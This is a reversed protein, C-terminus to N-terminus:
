KSMKVKKTCPSKKLALAVTGDPKNIRQAPYTKLKDNETSTANTLRRIKSGQWSKGSVQSEPFGEQEEAGSVAKIGSTTERVQERKAKHPSPLLCPSTPTGAGESFMSAVIGPIKERASQQLLSGDALPVASSLLLTLSNEERGRNKGWHGVRKPEPEEEERRAATWPIASDSTGHGSYFLMM